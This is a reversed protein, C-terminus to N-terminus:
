NKIQGSQKNKKRAKDPVVQVVSNLMRTVFAGMGLGGEANIAKRAIDWFEADADSLYITRKPM